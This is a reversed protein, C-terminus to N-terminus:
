IGKVASAGSVVGSLIKGSEANKLRIQENILAEVEGETDLNAQADFWTISIPASKTKKSFLQITKSPVIRELNLEEFENRTVEVYNTWEVM